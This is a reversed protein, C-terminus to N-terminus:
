LDPCHGTSVMKRYVSVRDPGPPQNKTLRGAGQCLAIWTEAHDDRFRLIRRNMAPHVVWSRILRLWDGGRAFRLIRPSAVGSFVLLFLLGTAAPKQTRLRDWHKEIEAASPEVSLWYSAAVLLQSQAWDVRDDSRATSQTISFNALTETLLMWQGGLLRERAPEIIALPISSPVQASRSPSTRFIMSGQSHLADSLQLPVPWQFRVTPNAETGVKWIDEGTDVWDGSATERWKRMNSWVVNVAPFQGIYNIAKALFEPEWWNDDELLGALPEPGGRYAHNFTKVAGWNVPHHHYEIRPDDVERWLKEPFADEPDDNHLECVWEQHTQELLSALARRLLEPRRYTLLFIRIDAL